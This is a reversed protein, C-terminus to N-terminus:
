AAAARVGARGLFWYYVTLGLLTVTLLAVSLASGFGWNLLESFQTDILMAITIEKRGGMLAPTVFFGLGLIFILTTAGRVGPMSLPLFVRLFARWPDAGLSQAAEVLRLDIARMVSFLILVMPPLLYHVMGIVTGTFNFVLPIPRPLIGLWEVLAQNIVGKNQLVLIWSYCRVLINTWFPLLVLTFIVARLTPGARNLVYALPYGAALSLATALAAIEFSNRLVLLYEPVEFMHLYHGFTLGPDFVSRSLLLFIPGAFVVLLFLLGPLLLLQAGHSRVLRRRLRVLDGRM